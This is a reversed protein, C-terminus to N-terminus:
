KAPKPRPPAFVDSPLQTAPHPSKILADWDAAPLLFVAGAAGEALTAFILPSDGSVAAGLRLKRLGRGESAYVDVELRPPELGAAAPIPGDYQTFRIASLNTLAQAAAPVRAADFKSADVGPEAEWGLPSSQNNGKPRFALFGGDPWRFALRQVSRLPISAVRRERLEAGLLEVFVNALEFVLPKGVIRAYWDESNPVHKGVILTATEGTAAASKKEAAVGASSPTSEPGASKLHATLKLHPKDFGYANDTVADEADLREARLNSLGVLIQTIVENDGRGAAPRVMRWANPNSGVGQLAVEYVRGDREVEIRDVAAPDLALVMKERFALPNEPLARLMADPLALVTSDGAIRAYRQRAVPDRRGFNLSLLPPWAPVPRPGSATASPTAADTAPTQDTKGGWLRVTMAPPDLGPAVVQKADFFDSTQVTSLQTLLSRVAAVDAPERTPSEQTWGSGSRALDFTKGGSEIRVFEVERPDFDAIRKSRVTNATLGLDRVARADVLVVDDQDTRRAYVQNVDDPAQKGLEVVMPGGVRSTLEVSLFPHDLGYAALDKVNEAVFGRKGSVVRLSTLDALLSEVKSPEAPALFPKTIRWLGPERRLSLARGPGSVNVSEVQYTPAGFLMRDRWEAADVDVLALLRSEVVEIDAQGPEHVYRNRQAVKGVELRAAPESSSRLYIKVVAEPPALGFEDARTRAISGAEPLKALDKLTRAFSEFMSPDAAVDLPEVLQGREGPRRELVINGKSGREIVIRSIDAVPVDMLEPLVRGSMRRREDATPVRAYDAWWLGILGAFFLTMLVITARHKM